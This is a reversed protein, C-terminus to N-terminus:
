SAVFGVRTVAAGGASGAHLSITWAEVFREERGMYMARIKGKYWKLTMSRPKM